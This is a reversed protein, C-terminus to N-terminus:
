HLPVATQQDRGHGMRVVMISATKLVILGITAWWVGSYPILVCSIIIAGFAAGVLDASFTRTAAPNDGGALFLAVPFQVGCLLSIGFALCYFVVEPFGQAGLKLLIVILVMLLILGMDTLILVLPNKGHLSKGFLAGPLLGALFVTVIMGIKLYIYGFLIQFIFIVLVESGMVTAGTSFLVFEEKTIVLIYGLFVTGACVLFWAPSTQYQAFWQAFMIRMMYPATDTNLPTTMDVSGALYDIRDKTINGSFYGSIYETRIEREELIGPIDTDIFGDSCVFFIKSGPLMVTYPFQRKVTNYLSSVKQRQPEGLYNDYGQVSFGLIGGKRLRAKAVAFFEETFFRNLQFTEPEPLNVIVADYSADTQMLYTRADQNVVRLGPIKKLLGFSFEVDSLAPDLQVYDIRDPRYKAIEEMMGAVSAIVLIKRPTETQTLVYHVAEEAMMLNRSSSVPMGDEFLTIEGNSEKVVLRGFRTEEYHVLEGEGTRVSTREMLVGFVNATIAIAAFLAMVPIKGGTRRIMLCAAAVLVMNTVLLAKLPSLLYVLAFSFVVGGTVDGINDVIYITAGSYLLNERRLVFLSFPLVFGILFAYPLITFFTFFFTPYFGVSSGHVFVTDRLYRVLVIQLPSLGALVFTIKGLQSIDPSRFSYRRAFMTGIGGSVLWNFIILAIIFENGEFLTLFERITYLQTVISSIGTAIVVRHVAKENPSKL